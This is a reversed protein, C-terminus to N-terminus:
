YTLTLKIWIQLSGQKPIQGLLKLKLNFIPVTGSFGLRITVKDYGGLPLCVMNNDNEFITTQRWFQQKAFFNTSLECFNNLKYVYNTM